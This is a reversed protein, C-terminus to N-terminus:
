ATPDIELAKRLLRRPEPYDERVSLIMMHHDRFWIYLSQKTGTTLYVADRGVRALQPVSSGIQSVLARRFQSSTTHDDETFRSVQLTAQLLEDKRMSYLGVGEIYSRKARELTPAMDERGVKLDLIESPILEPPLQKIAKPDTGVIDSKQVCASGSLLVTAALAAAALRRM